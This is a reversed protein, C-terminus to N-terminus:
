ANLLMRTFIKRDMEFSYDMKKLFGSPSTLLYKQFPDTISLVSAKLFTKDKECIDLQKKIKAVRIPLFTNTFLVLVRTM